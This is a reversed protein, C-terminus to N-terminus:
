PIAAALATMLTSVRTDLAALDLHEGISYFSYRGNSVAAISGGRTYVSITSNLPTASSYTHTISSGSQRTIMQTGNPRSAGVFGTAISRNIGITNSGNTICRTQTTSPIELLLSSGVGTNSSLLNGQSTSNQSIYGALHKSNQPEANNNRNSNLYKTSGNGLLGTKRNYDGSVFNANTPSTGVLPVLAGPLTRAGALICSAKLAAWIADSKCGIVFNNIAVKVENELSQGDASEVANIYVKADADLVPIFSYSNTVFIM